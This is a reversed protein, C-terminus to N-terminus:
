RGSPSVYDVLAKLQEPTLKNGFDKPMVGAAYGKAIYADPEVLSQRVFASLPKDAAKADSELQKDLDPGTAGNAGAKALTHCGSCGNSAFM